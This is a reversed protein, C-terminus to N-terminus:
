GLAVGIIYDSADSMVEIPSTWDLSTMIPAEILRRKIEEFAQLYDNNFLFTAEKELLRFILRTIKSFDNIFKRYFGIHGM